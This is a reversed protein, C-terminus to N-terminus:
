KLHRIIRNHMSQLADIFDEPVKNMTAVFVPKSVILSKFVQIKCYLSLWRQNWINLLARSAIILRIFNKNNAIQKDYSFYIGLIKIADTQLCVWRCKLPKDTRGKSRGIWCAESKDVNVRLSSFAEYVKMHKLIRNVSHIDKIIFTTDDAFASLLMEINDIKFGKINKDARIQIFLIELVM